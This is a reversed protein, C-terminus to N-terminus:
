GQLAVPSAARWRGSEKPLLDRLILTVAFWIEFAFIPLALAGALPGNLPVVAFLQGLDSALVLGGGALGLLALARPVIGSALLLSALVLTNVGIVLGQGLLFSATHLGRLAEAPGAGWALALMPLAGAVIVAGEVARLTAFSIARVFGHDMLVPLLLVGTGVCGLALVFELLVGIRITFPDTAAGYAVVAAVSTVHTVFYLIGAVRARRRNTKTQM